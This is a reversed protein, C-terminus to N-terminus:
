VTSRVYRPFVDPTPRLVSMWASYSSPNAIPHRLAKRLMSRTSPLLTYVISRRSFAIALGTLTPPKWFTVFYANRSVLLAILPLVGGAGRMSQRFTAEGGNVSSHTLHSDISSPFVVAVVAVNLLLSLSINDGITM